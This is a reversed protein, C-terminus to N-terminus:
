TVFQHRHGNRRNRLAPTGARARTPQQAAADQWARFMIVELGDARREPGDDGDDAIVLWGSKLDRLDRGLM